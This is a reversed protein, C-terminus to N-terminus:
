LARDLTLEDNLDEVGYVKDPDLSLLARDAVITLISVRHFITGTGVQCHCGLHNFIHLIKRINEHHCNDLVFGSTDTNKKSEKSKNKIREQTPEFEM